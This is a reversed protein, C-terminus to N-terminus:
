FFYSAGVGGWPLWKGRLGFYDTEPHLPHVLDAEVSMMVHARRIEYEVGLRPGAGDYDTRGSSTDGHPIAIGNVFWGTFPVVAGLAIPRLRIGAYGGLIPVGLALLPLAGVEMALWHQPRVYVMVAASGSAGAAMGGVSWAPKSKRPDGGISRVAANDEGGAAPYAHAYGGSCLAGSLSALTCGASVV